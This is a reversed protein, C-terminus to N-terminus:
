FDVAIPNVSDAGVFYISTGVIRGKLFGVTDGLQFGTWPIKFYCTLDRLGDGNVDVFSTSCSSFSHEAEDVGFTLGLNSKTTQSPADFTPSSLIAVPVTGTSNIDIDYPFIGPRIDIKVLQSAESTVGQLQFALNRNYLRWPESNFSVQYGPNGLSDSEEWVFERSRNYISLWYTTNAAASFPTPLDVSYQSEKIGDYAQSMPDQSLDPPLVYNGTSMSSINYGAISFSQLITDPQGGNDAYLRIEITDFLGIAGESGWWTIHTVFTIQSVQFQDAAINTNYGDFGSVVGGHHAPLQEYVISGGALATRPFFLLGSILIMIILINRGCKIYSKM